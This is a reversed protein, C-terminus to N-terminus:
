DRQEGLYEEVMLIKCISFLFYFLLLVTVYPFPFIRIFFSYYPIANCQM